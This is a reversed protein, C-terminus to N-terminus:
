LVIFDEKKKRKKFYLYCSLNHSKKIGNPVKKPQTKMLLPMKLSVVVQHQGEPVVFMVIQVQTM